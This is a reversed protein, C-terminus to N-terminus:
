YAFFQNELIASLIALMRASTLFSNTYEANNEIEEKDARFLRWEM